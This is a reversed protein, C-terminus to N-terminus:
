MNNIKRHTTLGCCRTCAPLCYSHEKLLKRFYSAKKNKNSYIYKLDDNNINGLSYGFCRSHWVVDGNPKIAVQSYPIYCKDNGKFPKAEESFWEEIEDSSEINPIIHLAKINKFRMLKIKKIQESLEHSDIEKFVIKSNQPTLSSISREIPTLNQKVAMENSVFNFFQLKFRDIKVDEDLICALEYLRNYNLNSVTCNVRIQINGLSNLLKVGEINRKFADKLGRIYNHLDEPGDISVQIIDVGADIINKANESLLYGNTTLLVTHGEDKIIKILEFINPSLLPETMAITFTLNKGKVAKSDVIKRLLEISFYKEDGLNGSIGLKNGVGVDCTLCKSNCITNAFLVVTELAPLRTVINVKKGLYNIAWSPENRIKKIARATKSAYRNVTDLLLFRGRITKYRLKYHLLNTM